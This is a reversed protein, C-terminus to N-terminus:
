AQLKSAIVLTKTAILGIVIKVEFFHYSVVDFNRKPVHEALLCEGNDVDQSQRDSEGATDYNNKIDIMFRTEIVEVTTRFRNVPKSPM